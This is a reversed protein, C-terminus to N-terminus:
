QRIRQFSDYHDGTYYMEGAGGTVIRRAGRDSSGPTEVTYEHYYGSPQAPLIRERNQFVVGDQSFPFPGNSGILAVTAAAEPPLEDLAVFRLGSVPDVAALTATPRATVPTVPSGTTAATAQTSSPPTAAASQCAASLLVAVTFLLARARM